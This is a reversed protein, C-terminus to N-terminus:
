IRQNRVREISELGDLINGDVNFDLLIVREYGNVFNRVSERHIENLGFDVFGDGTESNYLWGYVAGLKTKPIGLSEYVENLLLYGQSKLKENAWNQQQLLFFLNQEPDKTWGTCGDDYFRAFPNAVQAADTEEIVNVTKKVTKVEGNEDVVTEEVEKTKLNYKLEKDLQEGFRDVLRKRYDKFGKDLGAYAAALAVNRGHVIKHAGFFCGVSAAGLLVSPAYLKAIKLGTQVYTKTLDMKADEQTYTEGIETVGNATAEHIKKVNEKNEATIENVKLTAKCALVTSAVVGVSGVGMLIEPTHRKLFLSVNGFTRTLNNLLETKPM